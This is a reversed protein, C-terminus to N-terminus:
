KKKDAGTEVPPSGFSCDEKVVYGNIVTHTSSDYQLVVVACGQLWALCRAHHVEADPKLSAYKSVRGNQAMFVRGNQAMFITYREADAPQPITDKKALYDKGHKERLYARWVKATWAIIPSHCGEPWAQYAEGDKPSVYWVPQRLLKALRKAAGVVEKYPVKVVKRDDVYLQILTAMKTDM